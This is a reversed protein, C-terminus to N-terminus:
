TWECGNRNGLDFAYQAYASAREGIAPDEVDSLWRNLEGRLSTCDGAFGDIVAVPQPIDGQFSTGEGETVTVEQGTLDHYTWTAGDSAAGTTPAAATSETASTSDAATSGDDDDGGCAVFACAVFACAVFALLALSMALLRRM